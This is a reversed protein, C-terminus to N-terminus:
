HEAEHLMVHRVVGRDHGVEFCLVKDPKDSNHVRFM